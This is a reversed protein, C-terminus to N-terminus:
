LEFLSITDDETFLGDIEEMERIEDGLGFTGKNINLQNVLERKRTHNWGTKEQITNDLIAFRKVDDESMEVQVVPVSVMGMERAVKLRGEGCIVVNDQNIVIPNIFGFNSISHSLPLVTMDHKRVNLNNSKIDYPSLYKLEM